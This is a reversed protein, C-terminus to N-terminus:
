IDNLIPVFMDATVLGKCLPCIVILRSIHSIDSLMYAFETDCKLCTTIKEESVPMVGMKIVRM